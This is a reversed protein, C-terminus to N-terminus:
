GHYWHPNGDWECRDGSAFYQVVIPKNNWDVTNREPTTPYGHNLGNMYEKEWSQYIGTNPALDIQFVAKVLEVGIKWTDAAQTQQGTNVWTNRETETGKWSLPDGSEIPPLWPLQVISAWHNELSSTQYHRPQPQITGFIGGKIAATDHVLLNGDSAIGTYTFVHNGSPTWNPAYPNGNLDLDFVSTEAVTAVVPYGRQLAAKITAIDHSQQSNPSIDTDWYPLGAAHFLTHMDDISVGGTVDGGQLDAWHDLLEATGAPGKGPQGAFKCEGVSFFGCAFESENQEMQSVDVFDAVEGKSNLQPMNSTGGTTPIPQQGSFEKVVSDLLGPNSTAFGYEWLSIALISNNKMQKVINLVNNSGFEQSLDLTPQLCAQPNVQKFDSQWAQALNDSYVMPMYINVAPSMAQLFPLQNNRVPDAPCSVWLKGPLPTVADAFQKARAAADSTGWRGGEMDLCYKQYKNLFQRAIDVEKAIDQDGFVFAYPIINLIQQMEQYIVDWGGMGGYWIDGARSGVESVKVFLTTVGHQKAFNAAVTFQQVNWNATEVGLFLAVPGTLAADDQCSM